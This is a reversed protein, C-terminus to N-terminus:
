EDEPMTLQDDRVRDAKEGVGRVELVHRESRTCDEARARRAEARPIRTGAHTSGGAGGFPDRGLPRGGKLKTENRATREQETEGLEPRAEDSPDM